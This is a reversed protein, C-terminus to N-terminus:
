HRAPARAPPRLALKPQAQAFQQGVFAIAVVDLRVEDAVAFYPQVHRAQDAVVAIEIDPNMMRGVDALLEPGVIRQQGVIFIHRDAIMAPRARHASRALRHDPGVALALGGVGIRGFIARAAAEIVLELEADPDAAAVLEPLRDRNVVRAVM